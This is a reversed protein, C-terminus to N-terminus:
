SMNETQKIYCQRSDITKFAIQFHSQFLFIKITFLTFQYVPLPMNSVTSVLSENRNRKKMVRSNTKAIKTM